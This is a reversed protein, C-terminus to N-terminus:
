RLPTWHLSGQPVSTQCQTCHAGADSRVMLDIFPYHFQCVLLVSLHECVTPVFRGVWVALQDCPPCCSCTSRCECVPGFDLAELVEVVGEAMTSM